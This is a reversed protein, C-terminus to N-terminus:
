RQTPTTAVARRTPSAAPSAPSAEATVASAWSAQGAPDRDVSERPRSTCLHLPAGEYGRSRCTAPWWSAGRRDRTAAPPRARGLRRGRADVRRAALSMDEEHLALPLGLTRSTSSRAARMLRRARRAATTPSSGPRGREALRAMEALRAGEARRLYRPSSAPRSGATRAGGTARVACELVPPSDVGALHEAHLLSPAFGGRRGRGGDPRWTRRTSRGPRACTCTRPRRLGATRDRGDAEVVEAGATSAPASRPSRARGRSCTPSATSGAGPRVAPRRPDLPRRRRMRAPCGGM